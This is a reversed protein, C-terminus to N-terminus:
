KNNVVENNYRIILHSNETWRFEPVENMYDTLAVEGQAEKSTVYVKYKQQENDFVAYVLFEDEPSIASNNAYNDDGIARQLQEKNANEDLDSENEEIMSQIQQKSFVEENEGAEPVNNGCAAFSFILSLMLIFCIIKKM